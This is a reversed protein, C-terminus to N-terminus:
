DFRWRICANLEMKKASAGHRKGKPCTSPTYKPMSEMSMSNIIRFITCDLNCSKCRQEPRVGAGM